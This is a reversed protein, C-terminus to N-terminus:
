EYEEDLFEDKSDELDALQSVLRELQQKAQNKLNDEM